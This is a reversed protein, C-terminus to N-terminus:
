REASHIRGDSMVLVPHLVATMDELPSRDFAVLDAEKGPELTATRGLLRHAAAVNVTAAVLTDMPDIGLQVYEILEHANLGHDFVGSDAALILKVGSRYGAIASPTQNKLAFLELLVPEPLWGMSGASLRDREDGVAAILAYVHPAFAGGASKLLRFTSPGPYTLTDIIDAGAGIAADSGSADGPTNGGDAVAIRNLAHAQDIIAQMEGRTFTQAPSNPTLLSGTHYFNIFDAGRAVQERV